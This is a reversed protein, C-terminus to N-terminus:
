PSVEVRYFLQPESSQPLLITSEAQQATMAPAVPTWTGTLTPCSTVTYSKGAVASWTIELQGSPLPLLSATLLSSRDTPDTGAIWAILSPEFKGM